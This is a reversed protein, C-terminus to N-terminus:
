YPRDQHIRYQEQLLAFERAPNHFHEIVECCAIYDYKCNLLEPNNAFFPDYSSINFGKDKIMALLAAALPLCFSLLRTMRAAHM